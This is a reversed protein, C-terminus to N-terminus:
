HPSGGKDKIKFVGIMDSQGHLTYLNRGDNEDRVSASFTASSKLRAGENKNIVYGIEM